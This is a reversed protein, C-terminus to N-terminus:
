LGLSKLKELEIEPSNATIFWQKFPTIRFKKANSILNVRGQLLYCEGGFSFTTIDVWVGWLFPQLIWSKLSSIIQKM